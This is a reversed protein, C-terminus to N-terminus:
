GRKPPAGRKQKPRNRGFCWCDQQGVSIRVNNDLGVPRNAIPGAWQEDYTVNCYVKQDIAQGMRCHAVQNPLLGARYTFMRSEFIAGQAPAASAQLTGERNSDRPWIAAVRWDRQYPLLHLYHDRKGCCAQGNYWRTHLNYPAPGNLFLATPQEVPNTSPETPVSGRFQCRSILGAAV